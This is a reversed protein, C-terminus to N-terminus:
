SNKKIYAFKKQKQMSFENLENLEGNQKRRKIRSCFNGKVERLNEKFKYFFLWFVLFTNLMKHLKTPVRSKQSTSYIRPTISHFNLLISCFPLFIQMHWIKKTGKRVKKHATCIHCMRVIRSNACKKHAFSIFCFCYSSICLSLYFVIAIFFDCNYLMSHSLQLWSRPPM